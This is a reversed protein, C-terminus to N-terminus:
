LYGRVCSDNCCSHYCSAGGPYDRGPSYCLRSDGATFGRARVKRLTSTKSCMDLHEGQPGSKARWRGNTITINEEQWNTRAQKEGVKKALTYAVTMNHSRPIMSTTHDVQQIKRNYCSKKRWSYIQNDNVAKFFAETKSNRHV